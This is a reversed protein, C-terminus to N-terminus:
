KKKAFFHKIKRLFKYFKRTIKTEKKLEDIKNNLEKIENENQSVLQELSTIKERLNGCYLLLHSAILQSVEVNYETLPKNKNFIIKSYGLNQGFVFKVRKADILSVISSSFGGIDINQYEWLVIEIPIKNSIVEIEHEEMYKSLSPNDEVSALPHSKYLLKYDKYDMLMQDILNEIVATTIEKDGFDYTGIIILYKQKKDIKLSDFDYFYKKQEDSLKNFMEEVPFDKLNMKKRYEKSVNSNDFLEYYPLLYEVNEQTSLWYSYIDIKRSEDDDKYNKILNNWKKQCTTEDDKKLKHYFIESANGESLLILKEIDDMANAEIFPKLYFQARSDDIYVIFKAKPNKKKVKIINDRVVKYEEKYYYPDGYAKSFQYYELVHSLKKVVKSDFNGSSRVYVYSPRKDLFINIQSFLSPVTGFTLYILYTDKM